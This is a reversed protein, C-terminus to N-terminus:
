DGHRGIAILNNAIAAWYACRATGSHGRYRARHM